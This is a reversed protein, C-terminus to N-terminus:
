DTTHDVENGCYVVEREEQGRILLWVMLVSKSNRLEFRVATHTSSLAAQKMQGSNPLVTKGHM